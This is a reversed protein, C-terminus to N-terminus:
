TFPAARACAQRCSRSISRILGDRGSAGKDVTLRIRDGKKLVLPEESLRGLRIKPGPLDALIPIPRGLERAISRINRVDEAHEDLSGHSLNIRAVGMGARMMSKLVPVSKSSPGITCVIKTKHGPLMTKRGKSM